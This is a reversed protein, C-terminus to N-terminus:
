GASAKTADKFKRSRHRMRSVAFLLLKARSAVRRVRGFSAAAASSSRPVNVHALSDGPEARATPQLQQEAHDAHAHSALRCYPQVKKTLGICSRCPHSRAAIWTAKVIKTTVSVHSTGISPQNTSLYPGRMTVRNPPSSQPM